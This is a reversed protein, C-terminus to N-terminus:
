LQRPTPSGDIGGDGPRGVVAKCCGAGPLFRAPHLVLWRDDLGDKVPTPNAGLAARNNALKEEADKKYELDKMKMSTAVMKLLCEPKTSRIFADSFDRLFPMKMRLAALDSDALVTTLVGPDPIIARTPEPAIGSRSREDQIFNLAESRTSIM